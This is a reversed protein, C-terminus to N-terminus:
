PRESRGVRAKILGDLTREWLVYASAELVRDLGALRVAALHLLPPAIVRRAQASLEACAQAVRQEHARLLEATEDEFGPTLVTRLRKARHRYDRDRQKRVTEDDADHAPALALDRRRRAIGHREVENWGMGRALSEMSRVTLELTDTEAPHDVATLLECVLQSDSQFIREAVAMGEGGGFRAREPRYEATELAVVAGQRRGDELWLGLRGAFAGLGSLSSAQVRLRLHCRRGPGEVYRLFFWRDIEGSDLGERVAPAVADVLVADQRDVSGFVKFTRWGAAPPDLRAPPVAGAARVASIAAEKQEKGHEKRSRRLEGEPHFVAAVVAEVRRGQRDVTKEWPPWIEWVRDHGALERAASASTLDVPLLEDERGVQVWRPVGAKGRWARLIRSPHGGAIEKGAASPPIRWSAPSVVFGDISIRPVHALAALPGLNLAWPAHQRHLSWGVLLRYIGEPATSSRVRALPSPVVPQASGRARLALPLAAAPDACLELDAPTLVEDYPADGAPWGSLALARRRLPPHTCLEALATTPSFIVDLHEEGTEAGKEAARLETFAPSLLGGLAHSFRGWSSGAPAHLGLLWGTGRKAGRPERCPSLFLEISTPRAPEPFDTLAAEVEAAQLALESEGRSVTAVIGDVLLTLLPRALEPSLPAGAAGEGSGDLTVGYDGTELAGLDLAGAGFVETVADLADVLDPDLAREAVPPVLAEQLRLLLPALAAARDVAVRALTPPTSPQHLLTGTIVPVPHGALASSAGALDGAELAALAGDMAQLAASQSRPLNLAALRRRLWPAAPPGVLPPHLDHHLLGDDVLVLLLEDVDSDHDGSEGDPTDTGQRAVTRAAAWATWGTCAIDIIRDLRPNPEADRAGSTADGDDDDDDDDDDALALWRLRDPARVLSPACRLRVQERIAPDDLLSRALRAVWRWSLGLHPRPKGTAIRTTGGLEGVCVGALLGAPTPRFAARRAYRDLAREAAATERKEAVLSPSALQLAMRGLPHALLAGPGDPLTAAPLLPARLLFRRVPVFPM